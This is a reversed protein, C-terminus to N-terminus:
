VQDRAYFYTMRTRANLYERVEPLLESPRVAQVVRVGSENALDLTPAEDRPVDPAYLTITPRLTDAHNISVVMGLGGNSLEVATGPPYVGMAKVFRALLASEYHASEYKFIRAIAESPILADQVRPPNCLNDYRNVLAVIGAAPPLAVGKLGRPYGSGDSHEHHMSLVARAHPGLRPLKKILNEGYEVHMRFFNEEARTREADPKLKVGDAVDLKGIDHFLAGLAMDQLATEDMGCAKGLLLSLLMVNVSHAYQNTQALRESLLILSVEGGAGLASVSDTVLGLTKDIASQPSSFMAAFAERLVQTANLYGQEAQQAKRRAAAAVARRADREANAKALLEAAAQKAAHDAAPPVAGPVAQTLPAAKSIARCWLVTTMGLARIVAIEEESSLTFESLIFPHDFWREALSIHMGPQLREVAIREFQKKRGWFAM